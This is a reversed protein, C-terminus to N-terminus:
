KLNRTPLSHQRIDWSKKENMVQTCPMLFLFLSYMILHGDHGTFGLFHQIRTPVQRISSLSTPTAIINYSPLDSAQALTPHHLLLTHESAPVPVNVWEDLLTSHSEEPKEGWQGSFSPSLWYEPAWVVQPSTDTHNFRWNSKIKSSQALGDSYPSLSSWGRLNQEAKM